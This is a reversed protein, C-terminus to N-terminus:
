PLARPREEPWAELLGFVMHAAEVQLTLSLHTGDPMEYAGDCQEEAAQAMNKLDLFLMRRALAPQARSVLEVARDEYARLSQTGQQPLYQKPKFKGHGHQRIWLYTVEIKGGTKSLAADVEKALLGIESAM